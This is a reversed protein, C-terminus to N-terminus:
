SNYRAQPKAYTMKMICQIVASTTEWRDLKSNKHAGVHNPRAQVHNRFLNRCSKEVRDSEVIDDHECHAQLKAYISCHGGPHEMKAKATLTGARRENALYRCCKQLRCPKTDCTMSRCFSAPIGGVFQWCWQSITSFSVCDVLQFFLHDSDNYESWIM